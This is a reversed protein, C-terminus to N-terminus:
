ESCNLEAGLRRIERDSIVGVVLFRSKFIYLIWSKTGSFKACFFEWSIVLYLKDSIARVLQNTMGLIYFSVFANFISLGTYPKYYDIGSLLLVKFL